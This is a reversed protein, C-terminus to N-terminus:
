ADWRSGEGGTSVDPQSKINHHEMVKAIAKERISALDVVAGSGSKERLENFSQIRLMAGHAQEWREQKVFCDFCGVLCNIDGLEVGLKFWEFAKDTNGFYNLELFGLQAFSEKFGQTASMEFHYRSRQADDGYIQGLLFHCEPVKRLPALNISKELYVKASNLDPKAFSIHGLTKFTESALFSQDDLELFSHYHNEADQIRGKSYAYDGALKLALPHKIELLNAILKKSYNRDDLSFKEMKEDRLASFALMSVADNDGMEASREILTEELRLLRKDTQHTSTRIEKLVKQFLTLDAAKAYKPIIADDPSEYLAKLIPLYKKWTLRANMDYLVRNVTKKAPLIELLQQTSLSRLQHLCRLNKKSRLITSKLM